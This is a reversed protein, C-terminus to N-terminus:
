CEARFPDTPGRVQAWDPHNFIPLDPHKKAISAMVDVLLGPHVAESFLMLNVLDTKKLASFYATRQM